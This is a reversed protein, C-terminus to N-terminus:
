WVRQIYHVYLTREESTESGQAILQLNKNTDSWNQVNKVSTGDTTLIKLTEGPRLANVANRAEVIPEPCKLGIVDLVKDCDLSSMVSAEEPLSIM